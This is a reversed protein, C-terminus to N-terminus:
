HLWKNMGNDIKGNSAKVNLSNKFNGKTCTIVGGAGEVIALGAAVDWLMIDEELYYEASGKAVHLLSISASGMMRVKGFQGMFSCYESLKEKNDVNFRSPFGTCLIAENLTKIDSVNLKKSGLFAGIDKGGWAIEKSLVNGVVGFIPINGNYLAISIASPGVNRVFNVTGDLPDVIFRYTSDNNIVNNGGEESLIPLGIKVLKNFILEDMISDVKAKMERKNEPFYSYKILDEANYSDLIEIAENVITKTKNLLKNIESSTM